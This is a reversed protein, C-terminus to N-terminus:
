HTAGGAVRVDQKTVLACELVARVGAIMTELAMSPQGPHRAAQQPLWPV